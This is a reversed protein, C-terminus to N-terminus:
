STRARILEHAVTVEDIIACRPCRLADLDFGHRLLDASPIRTGGDLAPSIPAALAIKNGLPHKV